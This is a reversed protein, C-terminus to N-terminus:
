VKFQVYWKVFTRRYKSVFPISYIRCKDVFKIM